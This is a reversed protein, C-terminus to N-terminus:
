AKVEATTRYDGRPTSEPVFWTLERKFQSGKKLQEEIAFDETHVQKGKYHSSVTIKTIYAETILEGIFTTTTM